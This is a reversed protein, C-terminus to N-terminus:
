TTFTKYPIWGTQILVSTSNSGLLHQELLSHQNCNLLVPSIHQPSQFINCLESEVPTVDGHVPNDKARMWEGAFIAM